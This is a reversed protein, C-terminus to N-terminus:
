AHVASRRTLWRELGFPTRDVIVVYAALVLWFLDRVITAQSIPDENAATSAFCGCSTDIGRAFAMSVATVFMLMMGFVLLGGARTRVGLILLLAATVEVWPLIIAQLNVLNLPLIDYTAIDLAFSEPHLVKHWAAWLFVAGLYLRTALTLWAHGRWDFFRV